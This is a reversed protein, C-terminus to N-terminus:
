PCLLITAEHVVIHWSGNPLTLVLYHTPLICVPIAQISRTMQPHLREFFYLRWSIGPWAGTHRRTKVVLIAQTSWYNENGKKREYYYGPVNHLKPVLFNGVTCKGGMRWCSTSASALTNCLSNPLPSVFKSYHNPEFNVSQLRLVIPMPWFMRLLLQSKHLHLILNTFEHVPHTSTGLHHWWIAFGTKSSFDSSCYETKNVPSQVKVM